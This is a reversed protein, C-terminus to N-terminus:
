LNYKKLMEKLSKSLLRKRGSGDPNSSNQRNVPTNFRNGTGPTSVRSGSLDSLTSTRSRNPNVKLDLRPTGTISLIDDEEDEDEKKGKETPTKGQKRLTAFDIYEALINESPDIGTFSKYKNTFKKESLKPTIDNYIRLFLHEKVMDIFRPWNIIYIHEAKPALARNNKRKYVSKLAINYQSKLDPNDPYLYQEGIKAVMERLEDDTFTDKAVKAISLKKSKIYRDRENVINMISEENEQQLILEREKEQRELELKEEELKAKEEEIKQKKSQSRTKIEKKETELKEIKKEKEEEIKAKEAKAENSKKKIDALKRAVEERKIRKDENIEAQLADRKIENEEYEKVDDKYEQTNTNGALDALEIRLQIEAMYANIDTLQAKKDAQILADLDALDKSRETHKQEDDKYDTGNSKALNVKNNLDEIENKLETHRKLMAEREEQLRMDEEEQRKREIEEAEIEKEAEKEKEEQEILLKTAEEVLRKREEELADAQDQEAKSLKKLEEDEQKLKSEYQHQQIKKQELIAERDLQYQKRQESIVRNIADNYEQQEKKTLEEYEEDKKSKLLDYLESNNTQLLDDIPVGTEIALIPNITKDSENYWRDFVDKVKSLYNKIINDLINDNMKSKNKVYESQFSEYADNLVTKDVQVLDPMVVTYVQRIIKSYIQFTPKQKIDSSIDNNAINQKSQLKLKLFDVKTVNARPRKTKNDIAHIADKPDNRFAVIPKLKAQSAIVFGDYTRSPNVIRSDLTNVRKLIGVPKRHIIDYKPDRYYIRNPMIMTNSRMGEDRPLISEFM